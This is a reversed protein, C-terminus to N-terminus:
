SPVREEIGCYDCIWAFEGAADGRSADEPRKQSPVRTFRSKHQECNPCDRIDGEKPQVMPGESKAAGGSAPSPRLHRLRSRRGPEYRRRREILEAWGELVLMTAARWPLSIVQGVGYGSLDVGDISEAYKRTLRVLVRPDTCAPQWSRHIVFTM